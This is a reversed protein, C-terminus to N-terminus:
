GILNKRNPMDIDIRYQLAGIGADILIKDNLEITSYETKSWAPMADVLQGAFALGLLM